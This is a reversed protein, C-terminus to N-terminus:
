GNAEIPPTARDVGSTVELILRAVASPDDSMPVHGVGAMRVFEADPVRELMPVGFHKFPLVRDRDGWAIRVPYRRDGPLLDLQRKPLLRLLPEIAPGDASARINASFLAPDLRKPHAVQTCLLMWAIMPRLAIADAHKARKALAGIGIRLGAAIVEIRRQSRWAGGPSFLVLSQARGRRALEIAVWGGLSNGVVHLRGIGAANLLDEVGDVLAAVSPGVGPAFRPAGGHGLLTPALVDHHRELEPLIPSWARWTGGVGHLLLLPSGAGGRHSATMELSTLTKRRNRRM